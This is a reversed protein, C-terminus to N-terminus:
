QSHRVFFGVTIFTSIHSISYRPRGNREKRCEDHIRPSSMGVDHGDTRRWSYSGVGATPLAVCKRRSISERTETIAQGASSGSREEVGVQQRRDVGCRLTVLRPGPPGVAGTPLRQTGFFSEGGVSGKDGHPEATQTRFTEQLEGSRQEPRDEMCAVEITDDADM